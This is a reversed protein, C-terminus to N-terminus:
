FNEPGSCVLKMPGISGDDMECRFCRGSNAARNFVPDIAAQVKETNKSCWRAYLKLTLALRAM